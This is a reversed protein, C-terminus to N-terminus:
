RTVTGAGSKSVGIFRARRIEIQRSTQERPAIEAIAIGAACAPAAGVVVDVVGVVGATGVLALIRASRRSRTAPM